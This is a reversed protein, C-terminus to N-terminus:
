EINQIQERIKEVTSKAEIVLKAFETDSSKSGITNCERNIEQVLFDLKRGVPVDERLMSRFQAFHSDLRALEESIDAKDAFVACETLLRSEDVQVGALLERIRNMMRENSEAVVQPAKTVLERRIAELHELHGLVDAAMREGEAKRMSMFIDFAKRAVGEVASWVEDMDEDAKTQSFIDPKNAITQVTVDGGLGYEAQIQRLLHVYSELYERNVSLNVKDGDINEITLYIDIKGRSIYTSALSKLKEELANYLRGTKINADIYRSNVSKVEVLIDRGGVVERCRGYGTMSKIM